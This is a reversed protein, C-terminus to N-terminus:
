GKPPKPLPMWHTPPVYDDEDDTPEHWYKGTFTVVEYNAGSNPIDSGFVWYGLVTEGAKPLKKKVSIWEM